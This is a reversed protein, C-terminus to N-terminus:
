IAIIVSKFGCFQFALFGLLLLASFGALPISDPKILSRLVYCLIIAFVMSLIFYLLYLKITFLPTVSIYFLLDGLGFYHRFPNKLVGQKIIMYGVLAFFIVAFLIVNYIVISLGAYGTKKYLLVASAIFVM